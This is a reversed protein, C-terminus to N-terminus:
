KALEQFDWHWQWVGEPHTQFYSSTLIQMPDIAEGYRNKEAYRGKTWFGNDGRFTPIGSAASIGAGTLVLINQKGLMAQAAEEPSAQRPQDTLKLSTFPNVKVSSRALIEDCKKDMKKNMERFVTQMTGLKSQVSQSSEELKNSKAQLKAISSNTSAQKAMLSALLKDLKATASEEVM